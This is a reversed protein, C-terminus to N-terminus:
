RSVLGARRAQEDSDSYFVHGCSRCASGEHVDKRIKWYCDPCCGYPYNAIIAKSEASIPKKQQRREIVKFNYHEVTAPTDGTLTGDNVARNVVDHMQRVLTDRDVGQPDFDVDLILRLKTLKM